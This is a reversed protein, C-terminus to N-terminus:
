SVIHGDFLHVIRQAFNAYDSSRTVIITTTGAVNLDNLLNIVEEGHKYDLNGTPEDAGSLFRETIIIRHTFQPRRESLL